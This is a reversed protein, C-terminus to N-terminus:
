YTEQKRFYSKGKGEKLWYNKKKRGVNGCLIFQEHLDSGTATCKLYKHVENQRRQVKENSSYL